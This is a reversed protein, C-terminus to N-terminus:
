PMIAGLADVARTLLSRKPDSVSHIYGPDTVISYQSKPVRVPVVQNTSPEHMGFRDEAAARIVDLNLGSEIEVKLIRGSERLVSYDRNMRGLQLNMESVMGYRYLITFCLFFAMMIGFVLSKKPFGVTVTQLAVVTGKERPMAQRVATVEEEIGIQRALEAM